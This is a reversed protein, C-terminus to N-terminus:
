CYLISIAGSWSAACVTARGEAAGLVQNVKRKIGYKRQLAQVKAKAGKGGTAELRHLPLPFSPGDVGRRRSDSHQM